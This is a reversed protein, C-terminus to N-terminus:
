LVDVRQDQDFIERHMFFADPQAATGNQADQPQEASPALKWAKESVQGKAHVTDILEDSTMPMAKLDILSDKKAARPWKGM